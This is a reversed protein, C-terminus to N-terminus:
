IDIELEDESSDSTIERSIHKGPPLLFRESKTSFKICSFIEDTGELMALNSELDEVPSSTVSSMNTFFAGSGPTIPSASLRVDWYPIDRTFDAVHRKPSRTPSSKRSACLIASTSQDDILISPPLIDNSSYLGKWDSSTQNKRNTSGTGHGSDDDGGGGDDNGNRGHLPSHHSHSPQSHNLSPTLLPLIREVKIDDIRETGTHPYPHQQQKKRTKNRRRRRRQDKFLVYLGVIGFGIVISGIVAVFILEISSFSRSKRQLNQDLISEVKQEVNITTFIAYDYRFTDPNNKEGPLIM